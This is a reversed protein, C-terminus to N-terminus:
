KKITPDVNTTSAAATQSPRPPAYVATKSSVNQTNNSLKLSDGDASVIKNQAPAGYPKSSAITNHSFLSPASNIASIAL